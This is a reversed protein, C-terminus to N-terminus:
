PVLELFLFAAPLVRHVAGQMINTCQAGPTLMGVLSGLLL